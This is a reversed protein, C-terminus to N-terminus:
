HQSQKFYRLDPPAQGKRTPMLYGDGSMFYTEGAIGVGNNGEACVAKNWVPRETKVRGIKRTVTWPRTLSHDIPTIEDYLVERFSKAQGEGDEPLIPPNRGCARRGTTGV